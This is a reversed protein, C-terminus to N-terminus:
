SALGATGLLFAHLVQDSAWRSTFVLDTGSISVWVKSTAAGPDTTVLKGSTTEAVVVMLGTGADFLLSSTHSSSQNSFIVLGRTAASLTLNGGASVTAEKTLIGGNAAKSRIVGNVELKAATPTKGIGVRGSSDKVIDGNGVNLTDAQTDGLTTNGTSTLETFKGTDATKDGIPTNNLGTASDLTLSEKAELGNLYDVIAKGLAAVDPNSTIPAIFRKRTFM